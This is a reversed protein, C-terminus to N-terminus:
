KEREYYKVLEVVMAGMRELEPAIIRTVGEETLAEATVKGVAAALVDKEFAQQLEIGIGKGRAYEFLSRVQIATTFCVADVKKALVEECLLSVTEEDPAIHQYPLVQTVEAGNDKLYAILRPAPDGHLQVVVRKHRLSYDKMARILGDTTGDEDVIVPTIQIKKLVGVTKYGRSAVDANQLLQLYEDLFGAKESIDLLTQTGIGTTFIFLDVGAQVVQKLDPEVEKEALFVTGQLSRVLPIGGQKEILVSMEDTKRSGAIVIRKGLLVNGM